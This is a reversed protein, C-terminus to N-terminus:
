GVGLFPMLALILPQVYYETRDINGQSLMGVVGDKHKSNHQKFVMDTATGLEIGQDVLTAIHDPLSFMSTKAYEMREKSLVVVWAFVWMEGYQKACGGEIGVWLSANPHAKQANRARNTAGRLTEEDSMPQESVGSSTAVGVVNWDQDPFLQVCAKRTANVKVPNQSAVVTTMQDVQNM